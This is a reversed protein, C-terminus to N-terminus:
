MLSVVPVSAVCRTSAEYGPWVGGRFLASKRPSPVLSIGVCEVNFVFDTDSSLQEM